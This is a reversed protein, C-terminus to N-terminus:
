WCSWQAWPETISSWAAVNRGQQYPDTWDGGGALTWSRPAFQALGLHGWWSVAYPNWTSECPIVVNVFHAEWALNGGGDRYGELFAARAGMASTASDAGGGSGSPTPSGAEASHPEGDTRGQPPVSTQTADLSGDRLERRQETELLAVQLALVGGDAGGVGESVGQNRM